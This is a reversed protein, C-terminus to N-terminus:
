DSSRRGFDVWGQYDSICDDRHIIESLAQLIQKSMFERQDEPLSPLREMRADRTQVAKDSGAGAAGRRLRREWPQASAKEMENESQSLPLALCETALVMIFALTIFKASM